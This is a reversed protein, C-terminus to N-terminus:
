EPQIYPALRVRRLTQGVSTFPANGQGVLNRGECKPANKNIKM